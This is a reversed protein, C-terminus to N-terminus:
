QAPQRITCELMSTRRRSSISLALRGRFTPPRLAVQQIPRVTPQSRKRRKRIKRQQKQPSQLVGPPHLRGHSSGALASRGAPILPHFERPLAAPARAAQGLPMQYSQATATQTQVAGQGRATGVTGHLALSGLAFGTVASFLRKIGSM